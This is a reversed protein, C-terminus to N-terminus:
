HQGPHDGPRDTWVVNGTDRSVLAWDDLDLDIRVICCTPMVDTWRRDLYQALESFGPDHGFLMVRTANNPLANVVALLRSCSADYIGQESRFREASLHLATAFFDATTRARVAPSSVILDIPENRAAFRAAMFPANRRGRENLPRQIDAMGPEAWSSKAHRVLYLTRM